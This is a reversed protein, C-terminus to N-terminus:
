SGGSIRNPRRLLLDSKGRRPPGVVLMNGLEGGDGVPVTRLLHGFPGQAMLLGTGDPGYSYLDKIQHPRALSGSPLDHQKANLVADAKDLFVSTNHLFRNIM